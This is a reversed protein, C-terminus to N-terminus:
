ENKLGSGKIINHLNSKSIRDKILNLVFDQVTLNCVAAELKLDYHTSAPLKIHIQKTNESKM